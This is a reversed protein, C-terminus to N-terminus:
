KELYKIGGKKSKYKGITALKYKHFLQRLLFKEYHKDESTEKLKFDNKRILGKKVAKEEFDEFRELHGPYSVFAIDWSKKIGNKEKKKKLKKLTYLVNELTDHSKGEVIMQSPKIGHKRLFKYISYSQGEKIGKKGKGKYGSIVFYRDGKLDRKHKLATKTREEDASYMKEVPDWTGAGTPIIIADLSKKSTLMIISGIFLFIGILHMLIFQSQFYERVINGTLNFDIGAFLFILSCIFLLIGIKRKM